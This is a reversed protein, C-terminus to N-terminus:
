EMCGGKEMYGGEVQKDTLKNDTFCRGVEVRSVRDARWVGGVCGEVCGGYLWGCMRWVGEM